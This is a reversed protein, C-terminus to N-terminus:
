AIPLKFAAPDVRKDAAVTDYWDLKWNKKATM